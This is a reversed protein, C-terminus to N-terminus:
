TAFVRELPRSVGDMAPGHMCARGKWVLGCEYDRGQKQKQVAELKRMLFLTGRTQRAAKPRTHKASAEDMSTEEMRVEVKM